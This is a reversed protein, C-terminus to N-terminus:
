GPISKDCEVASSARRDDEYCHAYLVVIGGKTNREGDTEDQVITCFLYKQSGYSSSKLTNYATVGGGRELGGM